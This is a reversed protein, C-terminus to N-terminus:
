VEGRKVCLPRVSTSTLSTNIVFFLVTQRCVQLVGRLLCMLSQGPGGGVAIIQQPLYVMETMHLSVMRKFALDVEDFIRAKYM